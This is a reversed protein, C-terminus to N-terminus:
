FNSRQGKGPGPSDAKTLKGSKFDGIVDRITGAAAIYIGIGAPELVGYANPGVNGTVVAEVKKAIMLQASQIGAGGSFGINPNELAEFVGTDTDYLIFYQSRGFRSDVRSDLTKGEASICITMACM